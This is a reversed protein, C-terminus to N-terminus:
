ACNALWRRVTSAAVSVVLGEAVAQAALETSSWRSPPVAQACLPECALAKVEVEAVVEAPVVASPEVAQSGETRGARERCFRKRWRSVLTSM